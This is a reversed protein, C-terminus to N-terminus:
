AEKLTRNIIQGGSLSWIQERIITYGDKSITLWYYKNDTPIKCKFNGNEDTYVTQVGNMGGDQEFSLKANAIPINNVDLIKGVVFDPHLTYNWVNVRQSSFSYKEITMKQTRYEEKTVFVLGSTREPVKLSYNGNEDTMAKVTNGIGDPIFKIEVDPIPTNNKDIVKGAVTASPTGLNGLLLSFLDAAETKPHNVVICTLVTFFIILGKFITKNQNM